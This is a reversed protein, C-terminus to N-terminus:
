FVWNRNLACFVCSDKDMLRKMIDKLPSFPLTIIDNSITKYVKFDVMDLLQIKSAQYLFAHM